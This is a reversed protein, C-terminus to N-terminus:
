KSLENIRKNVYNYTQIAMIKSEMHRKINILHQLDDYSRLDITEGQRTGWLWPVKREIITPKEPQWAVQGIKDEEFDEFYSM